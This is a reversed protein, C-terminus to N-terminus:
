MGSSIADLKDQAKQLGKEAAKGYWEKASEIDGAAYAREGLFFQADVCDDNAAKNIWIMASDANQTIGGRGILYMQGLYFEANPYGLAASKRWLEATKLTNTQVGQNKSNYMGGLFFMAKADEQEVAMEFWKVAKTYDRPIGKGRYNMEGLDSQAKVYGNLASKEFWKAAEAYSQHVGRGSYYLSGIIYQAEADNAEAAETYCALAKSFDAHAMGLGDIYINGLVIKAKPCDTLKEAIAFATKYDKNNFAAIADEYSQASLSISSLVLIILSFFNKM